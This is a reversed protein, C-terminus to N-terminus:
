GPARSVELARDLVANADMLQAQAMRLALSAAGLQNFHDGPLIARITSLGKLEDVTTAGREYAEVGENQLEAARRGDPTAAVEETLDDDLRRLLPYISAQLERVTAMQRAWSHARSVSVLAGLALLLVLFAIQFFSSRERDARTQGEIENVLALSLTRLGDAYGIATFVNTNQQQLRQITQSDLANTKASVSGVGDGADVAVAVLIGKDLRLAGHAAEVWQGLTRFGQPPRDLVALKVQHGEQTRQRAFAQLDAEAQDSVRERAAPAVYVDRDRLAQTPVAEGVQAAVSTPFSALLAATVAICLAFALRHPWRNM